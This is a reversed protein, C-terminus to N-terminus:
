QKKKRIHLVATTNGVLGPVLKEERSVLEVSFSNVPTDAINGIDIYTKETPEFYLQGQDQGSVDFRPCHYIIKSDNGTFGNKSRQTLSSLRFFM